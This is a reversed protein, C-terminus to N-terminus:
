LSLKKAPMLSQRVLEEQNILMIREFETKVQLFPLRENPDKNLMGVILQGLAANEECKFFKDRLIDKIEFYDFLAQTFCKHPYVSKDLVKKYFNPNTIELLIVGLVFVIVKQPDRMASSRSFVCEPTDYQMAELNYIKVHQEPLAISDNDLWIAAFDNLGRQLIAIPYIQWNNQTTLDLKFLRNGCASLLANFILLASNIGNDNFQRVAPKFLATKRALLGAVSKFNAMVM